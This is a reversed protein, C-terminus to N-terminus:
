NFELIEKEKRSAMERQLSQLSAQSFVVTLTACTAHLICPREACSKACWRENNRNLNGRRGGTQRQDGGNRNEADKM